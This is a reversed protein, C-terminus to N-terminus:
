RAISRTIYLASISNGCTGGLELTHRGVTETEISLPWKSACEVVGDEVGPSSEAVLNEIDGRGHDNAVVHHVPCNLPANNNNNSQAEAAPNNVLDNLFSYKFEM